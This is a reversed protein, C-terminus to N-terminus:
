GHLHEPGRSRFVHLLIELVIYNEELRFDIFVLLVSILKILFKMLSM